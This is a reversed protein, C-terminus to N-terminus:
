PHLVVSLLSDDIELGCNYEIFGLKKCTNMFYNVRSRTTGVLEALTAQSLKPVTRESTNEKSHRAPHEEGAHPQHLPGDYVGVKWPVARL